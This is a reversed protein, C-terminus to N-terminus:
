AQDTGRPPPTAARQLRRGVRRWSWSVRDSPRIAACPWAPYGRGSTSARRLPGARPPWAFSRRALRSWFSPAPCLLAACSSRLEPARYTWASRTGPKLPFLSPEM